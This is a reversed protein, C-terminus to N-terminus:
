RGKGAAVIPRLAIGNDRQPHAERKEPPHEALRQDAPLHGAPLARVRYALLTVHERGVREIRGGVLLVRSVALVRYLTEALKPPLVVQVRGKEDELVLFGVSHATPPRQSSIVKGAVMVKQGAKLAKLRGIPAVGVQNLRARLFTLPHPRVSIGQTALDLRVEDELTLPPLLPADAAREDDWVWPLAPQVPIDESASRADRAAGARASKRSRVPRSTSWLAWREEFLWALRRRPIGFADFAGAAVLAAVAERRLATSLGTTRTLRTCFDALSCFEGHAERERVIATALEEGVGKVQVLGLRIGWPMEREGHVRAVSFFPKSAQVDVPFTPIGLHKAEEVIVSAPFFGGQASLFGALYHAPWHAKLYATIYTTKAFSAAHSRCFGYGTFCALEDFIREAVGRAIGQRVAGAVFRDRMGEMESQTRYHSMARRFGDAEGYSLGAVEHAIELVQEQYLVVGLTDRLIPELRPHAYRVPIRGARRGIYPHVMGAQIPGPRCLAVEVVLDGFTRPQTRALLSWQAPSELQFCALTQGARVMRMTATDPPELPLDDVQPRKGETEEILDLCYEISDFARLGLLDFKILGLAGVDDKDLEVARVGNASLRVAMNHTLPERTLLLGGNHLSLHRPFGELRPVLELLLRLHSEWQPAESGLAQRLDEAYREVDACRGFTPLHGTLRGVLALPFGLAKAIDRTALRLRYTVVNAVMAAHEPSYTAEVYRILEERRSSQVDVDIDPMGAREVNLFREFLLHHALPEVATIGLLYAVISNAASGRGACRIGLEHGKRVIDWVALFFEELRLTAIVSLEHELQQRAAAASKEEPSYRTPLKAECLRRLYSTPTEGPPLAVRPPVCRAALLDLRCVAAVSGAHDLAQPLTAFLPRLEDDSKLYQEANRPRERHPEFVRLGLRVCSLTDYVRYDHPTAYHVGNTAVCSIGAEDALHASQTLLLASEPLLNHRVDLFLDGTGLRAIYHDLLARAAMLNGAVLLKQIAGDCGGLMLVLGDRRAALESLPIVSRKPTSLNAQTLLECLRAYGERNRALAIITGTQAQRGAAFCAHSVLLECGTVPRIGARHCAQHFRVVGAVTMTDTIALATMKLAKAREVLATISSGAHRFSFPTHCHLECFDGM